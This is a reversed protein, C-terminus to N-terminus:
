QPSLLEFLYFWLGTIHSDLFEVRVSERKM